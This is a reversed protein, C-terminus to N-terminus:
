LRSQLKMGGLKFTYIVIYLSLFVLGNVFGFKSIVPITVFILYVINITLVKYYLNSTKIVLDLYSFEFAIVFSLIFLSFDRISKGDSYDIIVKSNILQINDFLSDLSIYSSFLFISIITIIFKSDKM